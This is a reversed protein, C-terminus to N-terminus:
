SDLATAVLGSAAVGLPSQSLSVGAPAHTKAEAAQARRPAGRLSGCAHASVATIDPLAKRHQAVGSVGVDAGCQALRQPRFVDDRLHHEALDKRIERDIYNVAFLPNDGTRALQSSVTSHVIDTTARFPLIAKPYSQHEDTILICREDGTCM